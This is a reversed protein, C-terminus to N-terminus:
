RLGYEKMKKQLAVRSIGLAQAARSVNGNHEGLIKAIFQVEFATRADRLDSSTAGPQAPAPRETAARAPAASRDGLARLKPSVHALGIVEGDLALAAAREIENQLERVNGPWAFRALLEQVAPDIGPIRKRHREAAAVLFREALLPIDERRERLPPVHIPFAGVRYYLDDRFARRAVADTLDRNTASIVRVDIKRTQRDGVPRVEGEQLVRLLKAQMAPPMEGIEDLLITGGSAAEFLGRQDHTAGTFAGRRHGFLESELLSEPLAACNVAVFPESARASAAHIGRAV